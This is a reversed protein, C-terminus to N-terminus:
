VLLLTKFHQIWSSLFEELETVFATTEVIIIKFQVASTM